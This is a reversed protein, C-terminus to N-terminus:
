EKRLLQYIASIHALLVVPVIFAPLLTYPFHLVAINPQEFAQKHFIGPVSLLGNILINLVLGICILNWILLVRAGMRQRIFVFYFLIPATMGALIDLNRGEFTMLQPLTGQQFLWLLVLEVPIRITHLLTLWRLDLNALWNRGKVTAFLVIYLLLPPLLIFVQRPPLTNTDTYFGSYSLVGQVLLVALSILVIGRSKTAKYFFFVTFLVAILFVVSIYAPIPPM